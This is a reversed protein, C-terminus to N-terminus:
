NKRLITFPLAGQLELNTNEIVRYQFIRASRLHSANYWRNGQRMGLVHLTIIDDNFTFTGRISITPEIHPVANWSNGSSIFSGSNDNTWVSFNRTFPQQFTGEWNNGKFIINNDNDSWTGEFVTRRNNKRPAEPVNDGYAWIPTYTADSISITNRGAGTLFYRHGASFDITLPTSIPFANITASYSSMGSSMRMNSAELYAINLTHIGAPIETLFGTNMPNAHTAVQWNVAVGNISLIRINQIRLTATETVPVTLQQNTLRSFTRTNNAHTTRQQSFVDAVMTSVCGTILVLVVIGFLFYRKLKM